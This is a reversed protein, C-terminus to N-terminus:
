TCTKKAREEAESLFVIGYFVIIGIEVSSSKKLGEQAGFLLGAPINEYNVTGYFNRAGKCVSRCSLGYKKITPIKHWGARVQM